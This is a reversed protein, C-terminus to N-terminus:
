TNSLFLPLRDGTHQSLRPVSLWEIWKDSRCNSGHNVSQKRPILPRAVVSAATVSFNIDFKRQDTEREDASYVNNKTSKAFKIVLVIKAISRRTTQWRTRNSNDLFRISGMIKKWEKEEMLINSIDIFIFYRM